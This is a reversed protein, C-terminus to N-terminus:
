RGYFKEKGKPAPALLPPLDIRFGSVAPKGDQELAGESDFSRATVTWRYEGNELVSFDDLEYSPDTLADSLVVPISDAGRYLAFEYRTAGSVTDWGFRLSALGRLEAPGFRYGSPLDLREPAPLSPIPRVSFRNPRPASIDFGYLEAKM